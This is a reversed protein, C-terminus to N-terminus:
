HYFDNIKNAILRSKRWSSECTAVGYMNVRNLIVSVGVPRYPEEYFMGSHGVYIGKFITRFTILSSKLSKGDLLISVLFLTAKITIVVHYRYHHSTPKNTVRQNFESFITLSRIFPMVSRCGQVVISTLEKWSFCEGTRKSSDM